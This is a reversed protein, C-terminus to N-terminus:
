FGTRRHICSWMALVRRPGIGYKARFATTGHAVKEFICAQRAKHVVYAICAGQNAFGYDRWGGCCCSSARNRCM